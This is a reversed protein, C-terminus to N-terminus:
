ASAGDVNQIPGDSSESAGESIGLTEAHYRGTGKPQHPSAEGINGETVGIARDLEEDHERKAKEATEVAIGAAVGVIGGLVAGIAMGAPGAIAGAAAGAALGGVADLAVPGAMPIEVPLVADEDAPIPPLPNDLQDPQTSVFHENM